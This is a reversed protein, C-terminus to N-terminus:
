CYEFVTRLPPLTLQNSVGRNEQIKRLAFAHKPADQRMYLLICLVVSVM